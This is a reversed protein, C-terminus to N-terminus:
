IRVQWVNLEGCFVPVLAKFAETNRSSIVVLSM